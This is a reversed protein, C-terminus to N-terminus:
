FIASDNSTSADRCTLGTLSDTLSYDWKRDGMDDRDGMDGIDGMEGRDGMDGIDGVYAIDSRGAMDGKDSMDTMGGMDGRDSICVGAM